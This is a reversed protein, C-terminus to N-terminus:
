PNNIHLNGPATPRECEPSRAEPPELECATCHKELETRLHRVCVKCFLPYSYDRMACDSQPRFLGVGFHGAGEWAGIVPTVPPEDPNIEETPLTTGPIILDNWKIADWATEKTINAATPEDGTYPELREEATCLFCGYEDALNGLHHALEHTIIRDLFLHLSSLVFTGDSFGGWRAENVLLIIAEHDPAHNAAENCREPSATFVCRDPERAEPFRCDLETNKAVNEMPRDIGSDGSVVNVRWVNFACMRESYPFRQKLAEVAVVVNSNFQDQEGSTFGDGIFVIDYKDAVPGNFLVKTYNMGNNPQINVPPRVGVGARLGSLSIALCVMTFTKAGM